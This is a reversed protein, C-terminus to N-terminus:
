KPTVNRANTGNANMVMLKGSIGFAIQRGNPSWAPFEVTHFGRSFV